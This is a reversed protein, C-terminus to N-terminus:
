NLNFYQQCVRMLHTRYEKHGVRHHIADNAPLEVRPLRHIKHLKGKTANRITYSLIIDEGNGPCEAYEDGGKLRPAHSFYLAAYDKRYMACRTMSMQAEKIADKNGLLVDHAYENKETPKRGDLSHIVDPEKNWADYLKKITEEPILNDDDITLITSNKAFLAAGFRTDLGFDQSTNVVRVGPMAPFVISSNNNWVIIDNVIKSTKLATIIKNTNETRKWHLTVVSIM